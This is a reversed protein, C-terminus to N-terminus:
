SCAPGENKLNFFRERDSLLSLFIATAIFASVVAFYYINLYSGASKLYGALAPGIVGSLGICSPILLLLRKSIDFRAIAACQYAFGLSFGFEWLWAGAAFLYIGQATQLFVVAVLISLFTFIHPWRIGYKAGAVAATIGAIGGVLKLVALIIGMEAPQVGVEDGVREMFTWLGTIGSLFILLGALAVWAPASARVKKENTNTQKIEPSKPSIWRLMTIASLYIVALGYSAGAYHWISIVLAPFLFLLAAGSFVESMVKFGFAREMQGLEAILQISVCYVIATGFGAIGWTLYLVNVTEFFQSIVFGTAALCAGAIIAVRRDAKHMFFFAPITAILWGALLSSGLLGLQRSDLEFTDAAAGIIVPM